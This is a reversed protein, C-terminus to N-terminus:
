HVRYVIYPVLAVVILVEDLVPVTNSALFWPHDSDENLKNKIERPTTERPRNADLM